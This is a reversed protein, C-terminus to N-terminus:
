KNVRDERREAQQEHEEHHPTLWAPACAASTRLSGGAPATAAPRAM